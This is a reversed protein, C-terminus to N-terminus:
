KRWTYGTWVSGDYQLVRKINNQELGLDALRDSEKLSDLCFGSYMEGREWLYCM